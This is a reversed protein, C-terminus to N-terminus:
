GHLTHTGNGQTDEGRALHHTQTEPPDRQPLSVHGANQKDRGSRQRRVCVGSGRGGGRQAANAGTAHQPLWQDSLSTSTSLSLSLSLSLSFFLHSVYLSLSLSLPFLPSLSLYFFLLSLSLSLSCMWITSTFRVAYLMDLPYANHM